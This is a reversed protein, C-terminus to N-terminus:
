LPTRLHLPKIGKSLTGRVVESFVLCSKVNFVVQLADTAQIWDSGVEHLPM